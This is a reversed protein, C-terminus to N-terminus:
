LLASAFINGPDDVDFTKSKPESEDDSSDDPKPKLKNASDDKVSLVRGLYPLTEGNVTLEDDDSHTFLHDQDISDFCRQQPQSIFMMM